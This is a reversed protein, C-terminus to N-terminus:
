KRRMNSVVRMLISDGNTHMLDETLPTVRGSGESLYADLELSFCSWNSQDSMM